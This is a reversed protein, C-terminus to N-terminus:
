LVSFVAEFIEYIKSATKEFQAHIENM